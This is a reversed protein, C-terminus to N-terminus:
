RRERQGNTKKKGGCGSCACKNLTLLSKAEWRAVEARSIGDKRVGRLSLVIVLAGAVEHVGTGPVHQSM